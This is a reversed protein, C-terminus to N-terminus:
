CKVESKTINNKISDVVDESIPVNKDERNKIADKNYSNRLKNSVSEKNNTAGTNALLADIESQLLIKKNGFEDTLDSIEQLVKPSGGFQKIIANAFGLDKIAKEGEKTYIYSLISGSLPPTTKKKTDSIDVKKGGRQQILKRLAETKADESSLDIKNSDVYSKINTGVGTVRKKLVPKGGKLNVQTVTKAASKGTSMFMALAEKNRPTMKFNGKSDLEINELLKKNSKVLKTLAQQGEKNNLQNFAIMLLQPRDKYMDRASRLQDIATAPDQQLIIDKIRGAMVTNEQQEKEKDQKLEAETLKDQGSKKDEQSKAEYESHAINILQTLKKSDIEESYKETYAKKIINYREQPTKANLLSLSEDTTLPATLKLADKVNQPQKKLTTESINGYGKRKIQSSIMEKILDVKDQDEVLNFIDKDSINKEKLAQYASLLKQNPQLKKKSDLTVIERTSDDTTEVLKDREDVQIIAGDSIIQSVHKFYDEITKISPILKNLKRETLNKKLIKNQEQQKQQSELFGIAGQNQIANKQENDPLSNEIIVDDIIEEAKQAADYLGEVKQRVGGIFSFSAGGLAGAVLNQTFEEGGWMASKFDEANGYGLKSDIFEDVMGQTVETFSERLADGGVLLAGTTFKKGARIRGTDTPKFKLKSYIYKGVKDNAKDLLSQTEKVGFRNKLVKSIGAKELATQAVTSLSTSLLARNFVQDPDEGAALGDAIDEQLEGGFIRTANYATGVGLGYAVLQGAIEPILMGAYEGLDAFGEPFGLPNQQRYLQHAKFKPNNDIKNQVTKQVAEQEKILSNVLQTTQLSRIDDAQSSKFNEAFNRSFVDPTREEKLGFDRVFKREFASPQAGFYSATKATSIFPSVLGRATPLSYTLSTFFDGQEGTPIIEKRPLNQYISKYAEKEKKKSYKEYWERLFDDGELGEFLSSEGYGQEFYLYNYLEEKNM